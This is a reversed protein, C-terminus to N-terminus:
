SGQLVLYQTDATFGFESVHKRSMANYRVTIYRPVATDYMCKICRSKHVDCSSHVNNARSQSKNHNQHQIIKYQLQSRWPGRVLYAFNCTVCAGPIGPINEGGGRTLSRSMCWPVHTVCKGHHMGPDSILPKWHLRHRPFRERCERRMRLGCNQTDPLLGMRRAWHWHLVRSYMHTVSDM